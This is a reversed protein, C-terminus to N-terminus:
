QKSLLAKVRKVVIDATIGFHEYLDGAPASAGFSNIGIFEGKEGLYKPWVVECAAEIAIRIGNGLVQNRYEVPQKAFLEMCPMSVVRAQINMALLVNAADVAISVESATSILTIQAAPKEILIYGGKACANEYHNARLDSLYPLNQRTLVLV